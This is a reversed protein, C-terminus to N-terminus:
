AMLSRRTVGDSRAAVTKRWRPISRRAWQCSACPRGLGMTVSPPWGIGSNLRPATPQGPPASGQVRLLRVPHKPLMRAKGQSDQSPSDRSADNEHRDDVGDDQPDGLTQGLEQGDRRAPVEDEDGPQESPTVEGTVASRLNNGITVVFVESLTQTPLQAM